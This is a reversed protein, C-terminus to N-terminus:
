RARQPTGSDPTTNGPSTRGRPALRADTRRNHTRRRVGTTGPTKICIRQHHPIEPLLGDTRMRLARRRAITPQPRTRTRNQPFQKAALPQEDLRGNMLAVAAPRRHPAGLRTRRVYQRRVEPDSIRSYIMSMSKQAGPDDHHDPGPVGKQSGPAWRTAFDTRCPHSHCRPVRPQIVPCALELLITSTMSRRVTALKPTSFASPTGTPTLRRRWATGACRCNRRQATNMPPDYSRRRIFFLGLPGRVPHSTCGQFWHRPHRSLAPTIHKGADRHGPWPESHRRCSPRRPM